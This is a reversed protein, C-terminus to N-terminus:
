AHHKSSLALQLLPILQEPSKAGDVMLKVGNVDLEIKMGVTRRVLGILQEAVQTLNTKALEVILSIAAGLSSLTVDAEAPSGFIESVERELGARDATAAGFIYLLIEAM